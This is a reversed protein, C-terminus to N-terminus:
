LAIKNVQEGTLKMEAAGLSDLLQEETRCGVIPFVPFPKSLLYALGAQNITAGTEESIQQIAEFRKKNRSVSYESPMKEDGFSLTGDALKAFLGKAQSSYAFVAMETEEHFREMKNDMAKLTQDSLKTEDIHAASYMPQNASFGQLSHKIAYDQAEMIRETTWNSCGFYRILGEKVFGNMTELIDAVPRSEDDRHLFYLDIYDAGLRQLSGHLDHQIDGKSLRSNDKREPLPQGGKTAVILKEKNKREKMWRGITKEAMSKEVGPLWNAYVEATDIFNGGHEFYLDMMRFSQKEDMTSGFPVSGLCLPFSMLDTGPIPKRM